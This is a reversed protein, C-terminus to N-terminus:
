LLTELTAVHYDPDDVCRPYLMHHVLGIRAYRALDDNMSRSAPADRRQPQSRWRTSRRGSAPARLWSSRCRLGGAGETEAALIRVLGRPHDSGGPAAHRGDCFARGGEWPAR